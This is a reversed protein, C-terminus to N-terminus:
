PQINKWFTAQAEANEKSGARGSQKAFIEACINLGRGKPAEGHLEVGRIISEVFNGGNSLHRCQDIWFEWRLRVADEKARQTAQREAREISERDLRAANTEGTEPNVAKLWTKRRAERKEEAKIRRSERERKARAVEAPKGISPDNTKAVCDFGVVFHKGDASTIVAHHMIGTGCHDCAGLRVSVQRAMAQAEAMKSNFATTNQEGMSAPPLSISGAFRFPGIGNGSREFPHLITTTNNM